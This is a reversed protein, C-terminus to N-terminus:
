QQTSSRNRNGDHDRDAALPFMVTKALPPDSVRRVDAYVPADPWRVRDSVKWGLARLGQEAAPTMQGGILVSKPPDRFEARDAFAAFPQTWSLYDVPLPLIVEGNKTQWVLGAGITHLSGSATPVAAVLMRLANILFRSELESNATMALELLAECGRQPQLTDLADALAIQQTPTFVGRRLFQRILLPDSVHNGLRREIRDRLQDPDASWVITNIQGTNSLITGATGGIASFAANTIFDGSSGIWALRDLREEIEPNRTYTDIGLRKALDRKVSSYKIQRKLERRTEAAVRTAGNKRERMSDTDRAATMPGLDSPYPNGNTGLHRAAYDSVSQAQHQYKSVLGGVYRAVGAPVELLTDVPHMFVRAFTRATLMARNATASAFADSRSVRDLAQLAPMEQAREALIEVSEAPIPGIPTDLIFHAMYGRIEVRSDVSFGPGSLLSTPALSLSDLVPEDEFPIDISRAQANHVAFVALM